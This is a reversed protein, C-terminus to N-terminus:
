AFPSGFLAGWSSLGRGYYPQKAPRQAELFAAQREAQEVWQMYDAWGENIGDADLVGAKWPEFFALPNLTSIM